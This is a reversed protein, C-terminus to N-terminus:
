YAGGAYVMKNQNIKQVLKNAIKTIDAEERVTLGNITVNVSANSGKEYRDAESRTLVREGDHLRYPVDNGVVRKTGWASRQGNNNGLNFGNKIFDVTASIPTKSFFDKIGQWAKKVGNVFETCKNKVSEFVQKISNIKEKIFEMVASTKDRIGNWNTKWAVYLAVAAAILAMIGLTIAAVTLTVPASVISVVTMAAAVIGLVVGLTTLVTGLVTIIGGLVMLQQVMKPNENIWSIVKDVVPSIKEMLNQLVPMLAQAISARVSEFQLKLDNWKNKFEITKAIQSESIMTKKGAEDMKKAWDDLHPLLEEGTTSLLATMVAQKHTENELKSTAVILENMFTGTDKLKGNSDTVSLGLGKVIQTLDSESKLLGSLEQQTVAMREAMAAFDGNAQEMSYGTSKLVRDWKQYETTTMGAMKAIKSIETAQNVYGSTLTVLTTNIAVGTATVKAGMNVINDAVAKVKDSTEKLSKSLAGQKNKLQEVNTKAQKISKKYSDIKSKTNTAQNKLDSMSSKAKKLEKALNGSEDKGERIAKELAHAKNATYQMQAKISSLEREAKELSAEYRKMTAENEKISNKVSNAGIKVGKLGKNVNQLPRSIQDKLKIVAQLVKENM